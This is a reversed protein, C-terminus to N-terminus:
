RAAQGASWGAAFGAAFGGSGYLYRNIKVQEELAKIKLDKEAIVANLSKERKEYSLKLQTWSDQVRAYWKEVKEYWAIWAELQAILREIIPKSNDIQPAQNEPLPELWELSPSYEPSPQVSQTM